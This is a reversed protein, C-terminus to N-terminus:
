LKENSDRVSIDQMYREYGGSLVASTRGMCKLRKQMLAAWGCNANQCYLIIDNEKDFTQSLRNWESLSCNVPVNKAGPIHGFLFDIPLRCDVLDYSKSPTVDRIYQVEEDPLQVADWCNRSVLKQGISAIGQSLGFGCALLAVAIVISSLEATNRAIRLQVVAFPVVFVNIAILILIPLALIMSTRCASAVQLRVSCANVDEASKGVLVAKGEWTLALDSLSRDQESDLSDYIMARSSDSSVGFVTIWHKNSGKGSDLLILVPNSAFALDQVSLGSLEKAFIGNQNALRILNEASIGTRDKFEHTREPSFLETYSVPTGISNSVAILAYLGCDTSSYGHSRLDQLLVELNSGFCPSSILTTFILIAQACRAKM